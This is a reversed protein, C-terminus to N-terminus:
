QPPYPIQIPSKIGRIFMSKPYSGDPNAPLPYIRPTWTKLDESTEFPVGWWCSGAVPPSPAAPPVPNYPWPVKYAIPDCLPGDFGSSNIAKAAFYYTTGPALGDISVSLASVTVNSDYVGPETGYFVEYTEVDPEANATWKLTVTAARVVTFLALSLALQRIITM